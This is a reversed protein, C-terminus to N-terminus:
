ERRRRERGREAAAAEHLCFHGGAALLPGVCMSRAAECVPELPSTSGDIKCISSNIDLGEIQRDLWDHLNSRVDEHCTYTAQFCVAQFYLCKKRCQGIRHKGGCNWCKGAFPQEERAVM